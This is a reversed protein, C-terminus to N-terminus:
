ETKGTRVEDLMLLNAFGRLTDYNRPDYRQWEDNRTRMEKELAELDLKDQPDPHRVSSWMM